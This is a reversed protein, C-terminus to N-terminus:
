QAYERQIADMLPDLVRNSVYVYCATLVFSLVILAAAAFIGLNIVSGGLSRGLIAPAFAMLLVLSYYAALMIGTLLWVLRQKRKLLRPFDPHQRIREIDNSDVELSVRRHSVPLNVPAIWAHM